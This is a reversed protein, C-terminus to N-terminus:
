IVPTEMPQEFTPEPASWLFYWLETDSAKTRPIWRHGTFEGACFAPLGSFTEMQHRWWTGYLNSLGMVQFNNAENMIRQTKTHKSRNRTQEDELFIDGDCTIVLIIYKFALPGFHTNASKLIVVELTALSSCKKFIVITEAFPLYTTTSSEHLPDKACQPRVSPM